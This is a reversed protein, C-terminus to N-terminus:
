HRAHDPRTQEVPPPPMRRPCTTSRYLPFFEENVQGTALQMQRFRSNLWGYHDHDVVLRCTHFEATTRSFGAKFRFLSDDRGGVGGGLHFISQGNDRAWNRVHDFMLKSPALPLYKEATGGLHYQVIGNVATFLGAAAVENHPSLIACLHLRAGLAACLDRFYTESFHYFSEAHLREMTAEYVAVFAPWDEHHDLRAQFGKQRLAAIGRRHNERTSRWLSQRDDNLDIWVTQGHRVVAGHECFEALPSSLLPHFRLFVSIIEADRSCRLFAHLLRCGRHATATPSLLPSPYGYPSSADRWTSRGGLGDPVRRLLLPILLAQSGERALFAAATGGEHRAAFAVYEPLHYFDHPMEALCEAWRPDTVTIFEANM